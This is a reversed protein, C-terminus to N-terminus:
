VLYQILSDYFLEATSAITGSSCRVHRCVPTQSGQGAREGAYQLPRRIPPPPYGYLLVDVTLARTYSYTGYCAQGQIDQGSPLTLGHM